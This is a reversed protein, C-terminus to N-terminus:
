CSGPICVSGLSLTQFAVPHNQFDNSLYGLRIKKGAETKTTMPSHSKLPAVSGEIARGKIISRKKQLEAPCNLRIAGYPSIYETWVPEPKTNYLYMFFAIQKEKEKWQCTEALSALLYDYIITQTTKLDISIKFHEIALMLQKRNYYAIALNSHIGAHSPDIKTGQCLINIADDFRDENILIMGLNGYAPAFRPFGTTLKKFTNEAEKFNGAQMLSIGQENIENASPTSKFINQLFKYIM